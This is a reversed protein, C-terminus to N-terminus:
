RNPSEAIAYGERTAQDARRAAAAADCPLFITFRSGKGPSSEVRVGGGHADVIHKVLALGLGTGRASQVLDNNIRYFKEFIKEQESRPIGIGHDAVEIAIQGNRSEVRVEIQRCDASYKIANNLLNLVAQAIADADMRVPPLAAAIHTKLTFGSSAIQYQYTNLVDEVVAAVSCEEFRYQKRGAEIKSFDLINNILQTLRRSERHIIRYYEQAKEESTARGLELIEAFMRILSLPTKLEHSVNSVFASKAQALRVQRTAGRLTLVAGTLLLAITIGGLLLNTKFNRRALQAITTGNYGAALQWRPFAPSFSLTVDYKAPHQGTAFIEKGDEGLAAVVLPGNADTRSAVADALVKALYHRQVYDYDLTMGLFGDPVSRFVYIPPRKECNCSQQWFSLRQREAGPVVSRNFAALAEKAKRDTQAVERWEGHSFFHAPPRKGATICTPVLSLETVEPRSRAFADIHAGLKSQDAPSLTANLVPGFAEDSLREMGAAAEKSISVLTERLNEKVAVQMKTELERSQRYQLTALIAVPVLLAAVGLLVLREAASFRRNISGRM